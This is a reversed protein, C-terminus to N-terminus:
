RGHSVDNPPNDRLYRDMQNNRLAAFLKRCQAENPVM